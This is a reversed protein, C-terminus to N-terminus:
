NGFITVHGKSSYNQDYQDFYEVVWFYTGDSCKESKFTGDWLQDLDESKFIRKGWRNYISVNWKEVNYLVKPSFYDNIGDGNPTFVNPFELIAECSAITIEDQVSGCSNEAKVWYVGASTVTYGTGNSADQWSYAVGEQYPVTLEFSTIQCIVTDEGLYVEPITQLSILITDTDVGCYNTTRVWYNGGDTVTVSSTQAGNFWLYSAQDSSTRLTIQDGECLFTDSGLDVIPPALFTVMITDSAQGCVNAIDVWYNGSSFVNTIDGNTGNFWQSTSNTTDVSLTLTDGTCLLTDEGFNVLPPDIIEVNITDSNVCNHINTTQVWYTGAQTVLLSDNTTGDQWLHTLNTLPQTTLWFEDGNCMTTDEGLYISDYAYVEVTYAVTDYDGYLIYTTTSDPTVELIPDTGLIINPFNSNVWTFNTDIWPGINGELIATDGKCISTDGNVSLQYSYVTVDDIYYYACNKTGPTGIAYREYLDMVGTDAFFGITMHTENVLSRFVGEVKTWGVDDMLITGTDSIVQPPEVMMYPNSADFTPVGQTFSVGMLNVALRSQDALSVNFGVYYYEGANLPTLLEATIYERYNTPIISYDAYAYAGAYGNGTKPSQNGFFNVPASFDPVGCVNYYDSTGTNPFYWPTAYVIQDFFTPCATYNEFSPNPVLNQSYSFNFFCLMLILQAIFKRYMFTM